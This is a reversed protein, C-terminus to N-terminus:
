LDYGSQPYLRVLLSQLRDILTRPDALCCHLIVAGSLAPDPSLPLFDQFTNISLSMIDLNATLTPLSHQRVRERTFQIRAHHPTIVQM